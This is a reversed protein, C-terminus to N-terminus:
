KIMRYLKWNTFLINLCKHAQIYKQRTKERELPLDITKFVFDLVDKLTEM